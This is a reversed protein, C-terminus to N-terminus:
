MEKRKIKYVDGRYNLFCDAKFKLMYFSEIQLFMDKEETFLFVSKFVCTDNNCWGLGRGLDVVVDPRSFPTCPTRLVAM